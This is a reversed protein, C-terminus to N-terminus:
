KEKNERYIRENQGHAFQQCEERPCVATGGDMAHNLLSYRGWEFGAFDKGCIPCTLWFKANLRAVLWALWRPRMLDDRYRKIKM